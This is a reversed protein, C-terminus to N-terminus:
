LSTPNKKVKLNDAGFRGLSFLEWICAMRVTSCLGSPRMWPGGPVPLVTVEAEM